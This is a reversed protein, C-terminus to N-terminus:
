GAALISRRSLTMTAKKEAYRLVQNAEKQLPDHWSCSALSYSLSLGSEFPLRAMERFGMRHEIKCNESWRDMGPAQNLLASSELWAVFCSGAM